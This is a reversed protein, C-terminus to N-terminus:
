LGTSTVTVNKPPCLVGYIICYMFYTGPPVFSNANTYYQGYWTGPEIDPAFLFSYYDYGLTGTPIVTQFNSSNRRSSYFEFDDGTFDHVGRNPDPIAEYVLYYYAGWVLFNRNSIVDSPNSVTKNYVLWVVDFGNYSVYVPEFYSNTVNIEISVSTVNFARGEYDVHLLNPGPGGLPDPSFSVSIYQRGLSHPVYWFVFFLPLGIVAILVVCIVALFVRRM